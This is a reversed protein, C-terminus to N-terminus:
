FLDEDDCLKFYSADKREVLALSGDEQRLAVATGQLGELIGTVERRGQSDPRILRAAAKQGRKALFHADRTLRCGLGPSGVELYYSQSIPDAEDLVPNIARTAAECADMDLPTDRDILVRLFMSGAVNAVASFLICVLVAAFQVAYGDRIYHLLRALTKRPNRSRRGGMMQGRRGPGGMPGRMGPGPM